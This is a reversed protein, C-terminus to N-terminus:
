LAVKGRHTFFCDLIHQPRKAVAHEIQFVVPSEAVDQNELIVALSAPADSSCVCECNIARGM